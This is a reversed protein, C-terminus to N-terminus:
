GVRSQDAQREVGQEVRLANAGHDRDAVRGRRQRHGVPGVRRDRGLVEQGPVAVRGREDVGGGARRDSGGRGDGDVGLATLDLDANRV